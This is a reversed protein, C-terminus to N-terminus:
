VFPHARNCIGTMCCKMSRIGHICAQYDDTPHVVWQTRDSVALVGFLAGSDEYQRVFGVMADLANAMPTGEMSGSVDLAMVIVLDNRASSREIPRYFQELESPDINVKRIPLDHSETGQRVQVHIIGNRDFSYQVRVPAGGRVHGIGSAVYKSRIQCDEIKGEGEIVFVDYENDQGSRTHLKFSRALKIPIPSNAPIINENIYATGDPNEAIVGMGHAQVDRKKIVAFDTIQEINGVPKNGTKSPAVAYDSDEKARRLAAFLGGKDRNPISTNSPSAVVEVYDEEELKTQMAAGLAVAEDPNVVRLPEKGTATRLMEAVQPMRTSGGVLLVDTVDQWAMNRRSLVAECLKKTRNLLDVTEQEFEERSIEISVYGRDPIGFGCTCTPRLTDSLKKKCIEAQCRVENLVEPDSTIDYQEQEYIKNRIITVIREDWDKGGLVHNGDTALSEMSHNDGMRILTVDFTGGGLDYVMIVANKRWQKLGYNLAAATPENILRLVKIGAQKAAYLTDEREETYFYAPVTIVAGDIKQRLREEAEKKLHALLLASLDKALYKKGNATCCVDQKGMFRKFSSACGSEGDEYAEKANDGCIHSGDPLFSSLLLRLQSM